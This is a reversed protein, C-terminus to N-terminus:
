PVFPVSPNRGARMQRIDEQIAAQIEPRNLRRNLRWSQVAWFVLIVAAAGVVFGILAANIESESVRRRMSM